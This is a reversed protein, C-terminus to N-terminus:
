ANHKLVSSIRERLLRRKKKYPLIFVVDSSPQSYFNEAHMIMADSQNEKETVGSRRECHVGVSSSAPLVFAMCCCVLFPSRMTGVYPMNRLVM